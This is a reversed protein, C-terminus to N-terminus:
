DKPREDCDRRERQLKSSGKLFLEIQNQNQDANVVVDVNQISFIFQARSLFKWFSKSGALWGALWLRRWHKNLRKKYGGVFLGHIINSFVM